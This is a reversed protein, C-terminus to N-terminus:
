RDKEGNLTNGSVLKGIRLNQGSLAGSWGYNTTQVQQKCKSKVGDIFLDFRNYYNSIDEVQRVLRVVM